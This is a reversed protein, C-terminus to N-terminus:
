HGQPSRADTHIWDTGFVEDMFLQLLRTNTWITSVVLTLQYGQTFHTINRSITAWKDDHLPVCWICQWAFHFFMPPLSFLNCPEEQDRCSTYARCNRVLGLLFVEKRNCSRDTHLHRIVIYSFAAYLEHLLQRASTVNYGAAVSCTHNHPNFFCFVDGSDAYRFSSLGHGSYFKFCTGTYQLLFM